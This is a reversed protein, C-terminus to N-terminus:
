YLLFGPLSFTWCCFFCINQNANKLKVNLYSVVRIHTHFHILIWWFYLFLWLLMNMEFHVVALKPWGSAFVTTFLYPKIWFLIPLYYASNSYQNSLLTFIYRLNEGGCDVLGYVGTGVLWTEWDLQEQIPSLDLFRVLGSGGFGYVGKLESCSRTGYKGRGISAKSLSLLYSLRSVSPLNCWDCTEDLSLVANTTLSSSIEADSSLSQWKSWLNRQRELIKWAGGWKIRGGWSETSIKPKINECRAWQREMGEMGSWELTWWKRWCVLTERTREVSLRCKMDENEVLKDSHISPPTFPCISPHNFM